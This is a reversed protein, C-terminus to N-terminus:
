LIEPFSELGPTWKVLRLARGTRTANWGKILYALVVARSLASKAVARDKLITERVRHFAPYVTPEYGEGMEDCFVAALEPDKEAFICSMGAHQSPALIHAARAHLARQAFEIVSPHEEVIRQINLTSFNGHQWYSSLFGQKHAGYIRAAGAVITANPIGLMQLWDSAKRKRGTDILPRVVDPVNRKIEMRVPKGYQIVASLRTQGDILEGRENFVIPSVHECWVGCRMQEALHAVARANIARNSPNNALFAVAMEPTVREIASFVKKSM